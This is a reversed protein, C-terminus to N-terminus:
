DGISVCVAQNGRMIVRATMDGEPSGQDVFPSNFQRTAGLSYELLLEKIAQIRFPNGGYNTLNHLMTTLFRPIDRYGYTMKIYEERFKKIMNRESKSTRKEM